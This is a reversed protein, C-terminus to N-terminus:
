RQVSIALRMSADWLGVETAGLVRSAEIAIEVNVRETTSSKGALTGGAIVQLQVKRLVGTNSNTHFLTVTHIRLAWAEEQEEMQMPRPPQIRACLLPVGEIELVGEQRGVFFCPAFLGGHRPFAVKVQWGFVHRSLRLIFGDEDWPIGKRWGIAALWALICIGEVECLDFPLNAHFVVAISITARM